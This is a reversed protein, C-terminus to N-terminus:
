GAHRARARDARRRRQQTSSRRNAAAARAGATALPLLMLVQHAVCSVDCAGVAHESPRRGSRPMGDASDRGTRSTPSGAPATASGTSRSASRTSCADPRPEDDAHRRRRSTGTQGELQGCGGGVLVIPLNHPSHLNGDGMGRRVAADLSRAAIGDGDPTAAMKELFHAFLTM